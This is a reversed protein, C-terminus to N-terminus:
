KNKSQAVTQAWITAHNVPNVPARRAPNRTLLLIRKIFLNPESLGVPWTQTHFLGAQVQGITM